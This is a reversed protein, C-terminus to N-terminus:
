DNTVEMEMAGFANLRKVDHRGRLVYYSNGNNDLSTGVVYKVGYATVHDGVYIMKHNCDYHYTPQPSSDTKM